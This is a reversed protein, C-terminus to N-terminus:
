TYSLIELSNLELNGFDSVRLAPKTIAHFRYPCDQMIDEHLTLNLYPIKGLKCLIFFLIIPCGRLYIYKKLPGVPATLGKIGQTKVDGGGGGVM